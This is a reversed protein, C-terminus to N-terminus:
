VQGSVPEYHDLADLIYDDEQDPASCGVFCTVLLIM